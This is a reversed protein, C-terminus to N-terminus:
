TTSVMSTVLLKYQTPPDLIAIYLVMVFLSPLLYSGFHRFEHSRQSTNHITFIFISLLSCAHICVHSHNNKSKTHLLLRTLKAAHLSILYAGKCAICEQGTSREWEQHNSSQVGQLSIHSYVVSRDAWTFIGATRRGSSLCPICAAISDTGSLQIARRPYNNIVGIHPYGQQRYEDAM